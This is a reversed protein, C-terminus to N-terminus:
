AFLNAFSVGEELPAGSRDPFVLDSSGPKVWDCVEGFVHDLATQGIIQPSEDELRDIEAEPFMNGYVGGRVSEGVVLMLNGEGHDCGGDGNARIQRGFEGGFVLVMDDLLSQPVQSYLTDFTKGDGFLDILRPDLDLYQDEHTDFGGYSLSVVSPDLLDNCALVDYLNRVQLGFDPSLLAPDDHDCLAALEAPVPVTALREDIPEGLDRLTQEVDVFRRFASSSPMEERLAKYYAQLSRTIRREEANAAQTANFLTLERTDRAAIMNANDHGTPDTASPGYCFPSPIPTLAVARGGAAAALRGGWGSGEQDNPGLSRDGHNLVILGHAHNRSAAGYVNSVIAVKGRDWMRQLWGCSNLMGFDTNGASLPTYADNWRAQYASNSDAIGHANAMSKWYRYGFSMTDSDYAPPFLYRFDPGGELAINVLLRRGLMPFGDARAISGIRPLGGAGYLVSGFLAARLFDRRLM